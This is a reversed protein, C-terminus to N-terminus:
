IYFIEPQIFRWFATAGTFAAYTDAHAFQAPVNSTFLVSATRLPM